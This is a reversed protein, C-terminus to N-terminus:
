EDGQILSVRMDMSVTKMLDYGSSLFAVLPIFENVYECLVKSKMQHDKSESKSLFNADEWANWAVVQQADLAARHKKYFSNNPITILLSSICQIIETSYVPHDQDFLDDVKRAIFAIDLLYDKAAKDGCSAIDILRILEQDFQKRTEESSMAQLRM